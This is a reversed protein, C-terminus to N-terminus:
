DQKGFCDVKNIPTYDILNRLAELEDILWDLQKMLEYKAEYLTEGYGRLDSLDHSITYSTDSIKFYDNDEKFYVEHSNIKGKGDDYHCIKM